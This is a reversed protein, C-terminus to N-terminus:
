PHVARQQAKAAKKTEQDQVCDTPNRPRPILGDYPRYRCLSCSLCLIFACLVSM